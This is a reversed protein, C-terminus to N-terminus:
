VSTSVSTTTKSIPMRDAAAIGITVAAAPAVLTRPV